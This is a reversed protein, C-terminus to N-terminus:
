STIVSNSEIDYRLYLMNKRYQICFKKSRPICYKDCIIHTSLINHLISAVHGDRPQSGCYEREVGRGRKM